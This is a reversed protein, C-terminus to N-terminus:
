VLNFVEIHVQSLAVGRRRLEEEVADMMPPPGCLFYDPLTWDSPIHRELLEADVYGSEGEWGEPPSSLVHVVKLDLRGELEQLEERFTVEQWDRSGYILLLPRPEEEDVMTRLMSMVPTIGIGGAIFVFSPVRHRSYTFVGYPGDLYARDGPLAHKVKGTFDGLEKITFEVREPQMASSSFSFPHERISWPSSWLTLWAFQGPLFQIGEHGEPRLVLSWSEGRQELVEEVLYPRRRMRAPKVLRVYLLLGIWFAPLAIWLARKWPADVWFGILEIHIAAFGVGLIALLGHTGRWFEYELRIRERWLSAVVLFTLLLLAAVGLATRAPMEVPNLLSLPAYGGAFLIVPHAWVIALGVLAIQRHFHYVIDLGFPLSFYRFRATLAFQVGFVALAAFGLAVSFERMPERPVPPRVLLMVVLPGLVLVLYVLIALAGFTLYFPKRAAPQDQLDPDSM